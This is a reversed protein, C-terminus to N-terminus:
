VHPIRLPIISEPAFKTGWPFLRDLRIRSISLPFLDRCVVLKRPSESAILDSFRWVMHKRFVFTNHEITGRLTRLKNSRAIEALLTGFHQILLGNGGKESLWGSNCLTKTPDDRQYNEWGSNCLTTDSRSNRLTRLASHPTIFSNWLSNLLIILYMFLIWTTQLPSNM